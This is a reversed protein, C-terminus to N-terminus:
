NKNARRKDARTAKEAPSYTRNTRIRKSDRLRKAARQDDTLIRKSDSLRRATTQEDTVTRVRKSYELARGKDARRKISKKQDRGGNVIKKNAKRVGDKIAKASGRAAKEAERQLILAEDYAAIDASLDEGRLTKLLWKPGVPIGQQFPEIDFEQIILVDNAGRVRSLAVYATTPNTEDSFCLDVLAADLTLGQTSYATRAYDPGVGVQERSVKNKPKPSDSDVYWDKKQVKVPYVGPDLDGLVWDAGDFKVLLATPSYELVVTGKSSQKKEFPHLVWGVLEGAM